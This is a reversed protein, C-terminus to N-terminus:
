HLAVLLAIGLTLVVAPVLFQTDTLIARVFSRPPTASM